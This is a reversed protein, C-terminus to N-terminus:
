AQDGWRQRRSADDVGGRGGGVEVESWRGGGVEVLRWRFGGGFRM